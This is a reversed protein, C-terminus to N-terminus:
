EKKTAVVFYGTTYKNLTNHNQVSHLADLRTVMDLFPYLIFRLHRIFPTSGMGVKITDTLVTFFYGMTSMSQIHLDYTSLVKKIKHSTWRQFDSPDGHIPSLFPMSLIFTGNKKLVRACEQLGEEPREVHEFLELANVVDISETEISQMDCVDLVIDPQRTAEIDATIWKEVKDKPSQFKGRDRGGIDLVVGHYLHQNAFLLKDLLKRRNSAFFYYGIEKKLDM